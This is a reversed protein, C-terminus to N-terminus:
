DDEDEPSDTYGATLILFAIWGVFGIVGFVVLWFFVAFAEM